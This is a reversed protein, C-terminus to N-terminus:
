KNPKTNQPPDEDPIALGKILLYEAAKILGPLHKQQVDVEGLYMYDLLAELEQSKVENLVIVPKQCTIRDFVNTFFESCAM